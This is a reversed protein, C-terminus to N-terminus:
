IKQLLVEVGNVGPEIRLIKVPLNECIKRMKTITTLFKYRDTLSDHTDLLMFEYQLDKRLKPLSRYFSACPSILALINSFPQTQFIKTAHIPHFFKVIKEIFKFKYRVPLLLVLPRILRGFNFTRYLSQTYQDFAILGGKKCIKICSNITEITNPTHQLVGLALVIDCQNNDFPLNNVDSQLIQHNNNIPFNSANADVANSLDTSIVKAGFKLLVETFRGAGAGIELVTKNQIAKLNGGLCNNLREESLKLNTHSDLQTKKFKNWQIGFSEAYNNFSTFRPIGNIIPVYVPNNTINLMLYNEKLNYKKKHTTNYYDLITPLTLIQKQDYNNKDEIQAIVRLSTEARLREFVSPILFSEGRGIKRGLHSNLMKFIQLFLKYRNQLSVKLDLLSSVLRWYVVFYVTLVDYFKLEKSEVFCLNEENTLHQTRTHLTKSIAVPKGLKILKCMHIAETGSLKEGIGIPKPFGCKKIIEIKYLGYILCASESYPFSYIDRLGKYFPADYYFQPLKTESILHDKEDKQFYDCFVVSCDQNEQYVKLAEEIFSEEFYDDDANWMFFNGNAKELTYNFNEWPNLEKDQKFYKIRSDINAITECFKNTDDSSNNDSIIIELNKYTQNQLKEITRRLFKERNRTPVGISILPNNNNM